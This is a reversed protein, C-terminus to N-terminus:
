WQRILTVKVPYSTTGYSDFEGAGIMNTGYYVRNRGTKVTIEGDTWWVVTGYGSSDTSGWGPRGWHEEAYVRAEGYGAGLFPKDIYYNSNISCVKGDNVLVTYVSGHQYNILADLAGDVIEFEGLYVRQISNGSMDFHSQKATNYYDGNTGFMWQIDSFGTYSQASELVRIQVYRYAGIAFTMDYYKGAALSTNNTETALVHITGDADVGEVNWSLPKGYVSGSESYPCLRVGGVHILAGDTREIHIYEDGDYTSGNSVYGADTLWGDYQVNVNKNFAEYYRYYTTNGISSGSAIFGGSTNATMVPTICDGIRAETVGVIPVDETYGFSLSPSGSTAIDAYIYGTGVTENIINSIDLITDVALADSVYVDGNVGAAVQLGAVITLENTGSTVIHAAPKDCDQSSWGDPIDGTAGAVISQPAYCLARTGRDEIASVRSDIELIAGGASSVESQLNVIDSEAEVMGVLSRFSEADANTAGTDVFGSTDVNGLDARAQEIDNVKFVYSGTTDVSLLDLSEKNTHAHSSEGAVLLAEAATAAAAQAAASAANVAENMSNAVSLANASDLLAKASDTLAKNSNILATESNSLALQSRTIALLANAVTEKLFVDPDTQGNDNIPISLSRDNREKIEQLVMFARDLVKEVADAYGDLDAGQVIKTERYITIKYNASLPEGSLPYTVYGGGTDLITVEYESADIETMDEDNVLDTIYVRIDDEELVLFPFDFRTVSGNGEDHVPIAQVEVVM